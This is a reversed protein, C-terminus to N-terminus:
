GYVGERMNQKVLYEELLDAITEIGERDVIEEIKSMEKGSIQSYKNMLHERPLLDLRKLM